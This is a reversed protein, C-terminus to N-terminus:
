RSGQGKGHDLSQFISSLAKKTKSISPLTRSRDSAGQWVLGTGDKIVESLRVRM